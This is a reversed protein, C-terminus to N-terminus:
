RFRGVSRFSSSSYSPRYSYSPSSYHHVVKPQAASGALYGVAAATLATNTSAAEAARAAECAAVDKAVACENTQPGCVVLALSAAVVPLISKM